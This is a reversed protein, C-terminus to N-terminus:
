ARFTLDYAPPRPTRNMNLIYDGFRNIHETLYPSIRALATEPVDEGDDQLQSIV